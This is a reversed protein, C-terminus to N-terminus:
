RRTQTACFDSDRRHGPCFVSAPEPVLTPASRAYSTGASPMRFTMHTSSAGETFADRHVRRQVARRQHFLNWVALNVQPVGLLNIESVSLQTDRRRHAGRDATSFSDMSIIPPWSQASNALQLARGDMFNQVSVADNVSPNAANAALSLPAVPNAATPTFSGLLPNSPALLDIGGTATKYDAPTTPSKSSDLTQMWSYIEQPLNTGGWISYGGM